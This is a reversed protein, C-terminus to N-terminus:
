KKGGSHQGSRRCGAINEFRAGARARERLQTRKFEVDQPDYLTVEEEHYLRWCTM